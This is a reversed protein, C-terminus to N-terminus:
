YRNYPVAPLIEVCPLTVYRELSLKPVAELTTTSTYRAQTYRELTLIVGRSLRESAELIDRRVLGDSGELLIM